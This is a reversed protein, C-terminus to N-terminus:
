SVQLIHLRTSGGFKILHGVKLRYYVRPEIKNKNLWTGHTSNLDYVYWGIDHKDNKNICYQVVAHHRSMSPHEMAVDCSPLRGFVYFPKTCLDINTIVLGNKIVEFSYPKDCIGGWTPKKYPIPIESQKLLEAPSLNSLKSHSKTNESQKVLNADQSAIKGEEQVKEKAPSKFKFSPIKFTNSDNRSTENETSTLPQEPEPQCKATLPQEPEPQCKTTLPQEPHCMIQTSTEMEREYKINSDVPIGMDENKHNEEKVSM